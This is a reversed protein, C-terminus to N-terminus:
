FNKRFAFIKKKNEKNEFPALYLARKISQLQRDINKDHKNEIKKLTEIDEKISLETHKITQIDQKIYKETIHKIKEIENEISDIKANATSTNWYTLSQLVVIAIGFGFTNATKM